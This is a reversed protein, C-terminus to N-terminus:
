RSFLCAGLLADHDMEQLGQQNHRPRNVARSERESAPETQSIHFVTTTHPRRYGEIKEEGTQADRVRTECPIFTVVKVGHEGRKV